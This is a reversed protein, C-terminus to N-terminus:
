PTPSFESQKRISRISEIGEILAQYPRLNVRNLQSVQLKLNELIQVIAVSSATAKMYNGHVLNKREKIKPILSHLVKFRELNLVHKLFKVREMIIGLNETSIPEQSDFTYEQIENEFKELDILLSRYKSQGEIIFNLKRDINETDFEFPKESAWLLQVKKRLENRLEPFKLGNQDSTQCKLLESKAWESISFAVNQRESIDLYQSIRNEYEKLTTFIDATYATDIVGMYFVPLLSHSTDLARLHALENEGADLSSLLKLLGHTHDTQRQELAHLLRPNFTQAIIADSQDPYSRKADTSSTIESFPLTELNVAPTAITTRVVNSRKHFARGILTRFLVKFTRKQLDAMEYFNWVKKGAIIETFVTPLLVAGTTAAVLTPMLFIDALDNIHNSLDFGVLYLIYLFATFSASATVHSGQGNMKWFDKLIRSRYSKFNQTPDLKYNLSDLNRTKLANRANSAFIMDINKLENLSTGIAETMAQVIPHDLKQIKIPGLILRLAQRTEEPALEVSLHLWDEIFPLRREHNKLLKQLFGIQAELDQQHFLAVKLSGDYLVFNSHWDRSTQHNYLTRFAVDSWPNGLIGHQILLSEVSGLGLGPSIDFASQGELPNLKSLEVCLTKTRDFEDESIVHANVPTILWQIGIWM